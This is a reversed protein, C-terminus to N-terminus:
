FRAAASCMLGVVSFSIISRCSMRGRRLRFPWDRHDRGPVGISGPSTPSSPSRTTARGARGTV